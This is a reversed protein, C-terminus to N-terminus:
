KGNKILEKVIETKLKKAMAESNISQYTGFVIQFGVVALAIVQLVKLITKFSGKIEKIDEKIDSVELRHTVCGQDHEVRNHMQEEINQLVLIRDQVRELLEIIKENPSLKMKEIIEFTNNLIIATDKDLEKNDRDLSDFRTKLEHVAKLFEHQMTLNKETVEIIRDLVANFEMGKENSM